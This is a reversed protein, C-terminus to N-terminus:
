PTAGPDRRAVLARTAGTLDTELRVDRLGVSRAVREADAGRREDIELVVVGGPSLWGPAAELLADVIEHGDWGGVLAREPDHEGVEPQWGDRDAAPLYPPNAVLVDVRGRLAPPVIDLLAGHRIELTAGPATGEPGARGRALREANDRALAVARADVDGAVVRVGPVEAALSCAIAGTGTCPEVVVASPRAARAAGIALGAVVETEPRPVFVGPACRLTLTRFATEGLVLQLPERAARREVLPHLAALQAPTLAPAGPRHPDVGTVHEVLWRADVAASTVGAAALRDTVWAVQGALASAGTEGTPALDGPSASVLRTTSV